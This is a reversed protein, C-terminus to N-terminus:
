IEECLWIKATHYDPKAIYTWDMPSLEKVLYKYTKTVSYERVEM